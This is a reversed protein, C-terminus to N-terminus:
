ATIKATMIFSDNMMATLPDIKHEELFDILDKFSITEKDGKYDPNVLIL